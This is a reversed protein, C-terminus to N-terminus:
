APTHTFSHPLNKKKGSGRAGGGAGEAAFTLSLLTLVGDGAEAEDAGDGDGARAGEGEASSPLLVPALSVPTTAGCHMAHLLSQSTHLFANLHSLHEYPKKNVSILTFPTLLLVTHM